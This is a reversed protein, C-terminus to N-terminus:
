TELAEGWYLVILGYLPTLPCIPSLLIRVWAWLSRVTSHPIWVRAWFLSYYISYCNSWWVMIVKCKLFHWICINYCTYLFQGKQDFAMSYSKWFNQFKLLEVRSHCNVSDLLNQMYDSIYIKVGCQCFIHVAVGPFLYKCDFNLKSFLFQYVLSKKNSGGPKM